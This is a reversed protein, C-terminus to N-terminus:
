LEEKDVAMEAKYMDLIPGGSDLRQAIEWPTAVLLDGNKMKRHQRSELHIDAGRDLLLQVTGARQGYTAEYLANFPKPERIDRITPQENVDIGANILLEVLDTRGKAAYFQLAGSDKFADIGAERIFVFLKEATTGFGARTRVM